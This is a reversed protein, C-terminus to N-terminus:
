GHREGRPAVASLVRMVHEPTLAAPEPKPVHPLFDYVNVKGGLASAVQARLQGVELELRMGTHLSGYKNRYAAWHVVEAYSLRERAEAISHGGIGHLVLEM